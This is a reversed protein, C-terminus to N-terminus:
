LVEVVVPQALTLRLFMGWRPPYDERKLHM